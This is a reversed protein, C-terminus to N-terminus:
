AGRTQAPTAIMAVMMRGLDMLRAWRGTPVACPTTSTRCNHLLRKCLQALQQYDWLQKQRSLSKLDFSSWNASLAEYTRGEVVDQLLTRAM